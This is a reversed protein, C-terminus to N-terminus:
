CFRDYQNASSESSGAKSQYRCKKRLYLIGDYFVRLLFAHIYFLENRGM